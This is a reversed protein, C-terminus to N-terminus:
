VDIEAKHNERNFYRIQLSGKMTGTGRLWKERERM